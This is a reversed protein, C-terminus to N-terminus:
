NFLEFACNNETVVTKSSDVSTVKMNYIGLVDESDTQWDYYYIGKSLKTMAQASLCDTGDSSLTVKVSTVPDYLAGDVDKITVNLRICNGRKYRTIM